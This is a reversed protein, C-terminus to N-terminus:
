SNIRLFTISMNLPIYSFMQGATFLFGYNHCISQQATIAYLALCRTQFLIIAAAIIKLFLIAPPTILADLARLENALPRGAASRSSLYGRPTTTSYMVWSAPYFFIPIIKRISRNGSYESDKHVNSM